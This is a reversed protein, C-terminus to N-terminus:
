QSQSARAEHELTYGNSSRNVDVARVLSSHVVYDAETRPTLVRGRATDVTRKWQVKFFRLLFGVGFANSLDTHAHQECSKQNRPQQTEAEYSVLRTRRALYPPAPWLRLTTM